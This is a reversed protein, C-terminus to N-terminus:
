NTESLSGFKNPLLQCKSLINFNQYFSRFSDIPNTSFGSLNTLSRMYLKDESGLRLALDSDNIQAIPYAYHNKFTFCELYETGFIKIITNRLKSLEESYEKEVEKKYLEESDKILKNM